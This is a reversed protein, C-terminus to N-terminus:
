LKLTFTTGIDIKSDVSIECDIAKALDRILHLGLGTKIGVVEKDDYLAKFQEKSAGPGNDTVSLYSIGNEQWAKWIITPNQTTTFVNIANSTLNRIITKLYNEDTFIAINDPNQYEFKIKQYGSFVKKTDDFLQNVAVKKPQPKFNEMQGKSWLLIDEMSSLLNEAGTITKNQMRNKTEEDLLEPSDKQLHLFHILNAVPSRLDHNLISFFRTKTKNAQDLETNLLQLKENTKKRNRSQYFLLGGIIALLGIGFIYFWKQKEKAQLELQNIKLQNNKSAITHKDEINRITEKTNSNLISDKYKTYEKYFLLAQKDSKKIEHIKSLFYYNEPLGDILNESQYIKNSSLFSTTALELKDQSKTQNYYDFYCKGIENFTSAIGLNNTCLKHNKIGENFHSLALDFKKFKRDVVGLAINGVALGNSDDTKESLVLIEKAYKEAEVFDKKELYYKVYMQNNFSQLEFDNLKKTIITSLKIHKLFNKESRITLYIDALNAYNDALNSLNNIKKNLVSAKKYNDLAMPYDNLNMYTNGISNYIRALSGEDNIEICMKKAKNYFILANQADYRNYYYKGFIRYSDILGKKYNIKTAIEFSKKVYILANPHNVSNYKDSIQNIINVTSTDIRENKLLIKLSDIKKFVNSDQGYSSIIIFLLAIFIKNKRM